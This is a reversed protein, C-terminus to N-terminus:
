MRPIGTPCLSNHNANYTGHKDPQKGLTFRRNNGWQARSPASSRRRARCRQAEAGVSAASSFIGLQSSVPYAHNTRGDDPQEAPKSPRRSREEMLDSVFKAQFPGGLLVDLLDGVFMRFPRGYKDTLGTFLKHIRWLRGDGASTDSSPPPAKRNLFQRAVQDVLSDSPRSSQPIGAIRDLDAFDNPPLPLPNSDPSKKM